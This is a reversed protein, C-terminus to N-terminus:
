GEMLKLVRDYGWKEDIDEHSVFVNQWQFDPISIRKQASGNWEIDFGVEKLAKAVKNGVIIAEKDNNETAGYFGIMLINDEIARELDQGHYYCYGLPTIGMDEADKWVSGADYIADATEYGANHLAIIKDRCLNDFAQRLRDTDTPKSWTKAAEEHKAYEQSFTKRIWEESIESEWGEEEVAELADNIIDELSEFGSKIGILFHNYLYEENETM